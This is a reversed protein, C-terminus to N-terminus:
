PVRDLVALPDISPALRDREFEEDVLGGELRMVHREDLIKRGKADIGGQPNDIRHLEALADVFEVEIDTHLAEIERGRRSVRKAGIEAGLGRPHVSRE